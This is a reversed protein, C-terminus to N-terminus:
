SELRIFSNRLGDLIIFSKYHLLNTEREIQLNIIEVNDSNIEM